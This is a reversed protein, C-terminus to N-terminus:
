SILIVVDDAFGQVFCNCNGVRNLLSDVVMNWFLLSIVGGQPCGRRVSMHVRVGRIDVFVSCSRLMFDIWRNITSCVGHDSAADDMSEFFTNDFAGELDLFVGLPFEKQALSGDIKYVNLANEISKGKLYAHQIPNMPYDKLPGEKIHLDMLREMTKLLFSALVDSFIPGLIAVWLLM